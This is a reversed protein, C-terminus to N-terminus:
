QAFQWDLRTFRRKVNGPGLISELIANLVDLSGDLTLHRPDAGEDGPLITLDPRVGLAEARAVAAVAYQRLALLRLMPLKNGNTDLDSAANYADDDQFRSEREAIIGLVRSWLTPWNAPYNNHFRDRAAARDGLCWIYAREVLPASRRARRNVRGEGARVLSPVIRHMFRKEEIMPSVLHLSSIVPDHSGAERLPGNLFEAIFRAGLDHAVMHYSMSASRHRGELIGFLEDMVRIGNANTAMMGGPRPDTKADASPEILYFFRRVSRELERYLRGPIGTAEIEILSSILAERQHGAPRTRAMVRDVVAGVQRRLEDFFEPEWLLFLPYIGNERYVPSFARVMRAADMADRGAALVQILVHHYKYDKRALSGPGGTTREPPAFREGTEEYKADSHRQRIIKLTETLTQPDHHFAGHRQLRGDVIPLLHGLVDRRSPESRRTLEVESSAIASIGQLGVSFRHIDPFPAALTFAWADAVNRSWDEYTWVALGDQGWGRGWSNQVIFGDEVYGVIVFAHFRNTTESPRHPADFPIAGDNGPAAWGDHINATVVLVRGECVASHMDALQPRVRYYTGLLVKRADETVAANTYWRWERDRDKRVEVSQQELLEGATEVSCVGNHQFGKLAGRLSSGSYGEGDWEDHLQANGYLMIDSAYPTELRALGPESREGTRGAKRDIVLLHDIAAAVAHGTCSPRHGQDRVRTPTWWADADLRPDVVAKVAVLGPSYILDRADPIDVQADIIRRDLGSM